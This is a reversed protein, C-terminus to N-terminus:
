SAEITIWGASTRVSRLSRTLKGGSVLHDDNVKDAGLILFHKINRWARDNGLMYCLEVTVATCSSQQGRGFSSCRRTPTVTLHAVIFDDGDDRCLIGVNNATGLNIRDHGCSPLNTLAMPSAQFICFEECVDSGVGDLEYDDDYPLQGPDDFILFRLIMRDGRCAVAKAEEILRSEPSHDDESTGTSPHREPNLHLTYFIHSTMPPPGARFEIVLKEGM